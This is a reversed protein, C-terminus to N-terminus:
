AQNRRRMGFFGLVASGFLWAAAPVPVAGPNPNGIPAGDTTLVSKALTVLWGDDLTDILIRVQLGSGIEDAWDAGLDFTTFSYIDNAGDLTGIKTWTSTSTEFGQIIDVEGDVSDVDFASISLAATTYPVTIANHTWSWDEGFERYYPSDFTEAGGPAFYNPSVNSTPSTADITDVTAASVNSTSFLAGLLLSSVVLKHIYMIITGKLTQLFQEALKFILQRLEIGQKSYVM